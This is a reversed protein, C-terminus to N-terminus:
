QHASSKTRIEVPWLILLGVAITLAAAVIGIWWSSEGWVVPALGASIALSVLWCMRIVRAFAGQWVSLVVLLSLFGYVFQSVTQTRQAPTQPQSWQDIGGRIGLWALTLLLLISIALLARAARVNM